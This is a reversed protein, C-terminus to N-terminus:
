GEIVYRYSIYRGATPSKRIIRLVDGPKAGIARAVPDSAKIYPMQYPKIRYRRLVEEREEPTLIEHKPVLEHEFLNLVPFDTSILEIGRKRAENRASETYRGAGIIIGGDFGGEEIRGVM